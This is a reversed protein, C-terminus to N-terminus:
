VRARSFNRIQSAYIYPLGYKPPLDFKEVAFKVGKERAMIGSGAVKGSGMWGVPM